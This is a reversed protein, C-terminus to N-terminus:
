RGPGLQSLLAAVISIAGSTREWEDAVSEHDVLGSADPEIGLSEVAAAM